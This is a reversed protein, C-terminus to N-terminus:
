LVVGTKLASQVISKKDDKNLVVDIKQDGIKDKLRVLFKIKKQLTLNQKNSHDILLDIDGGKKADDARSGFLVIQTGEGFIETALTKISAIEHNSLRM